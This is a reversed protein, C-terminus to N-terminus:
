VKFLPQKRGGESSKGRRSDMMTQLTTMAKLVMQNLANFIAREWYGYYSMLAPSKGSNTGAVVQPLTPHPPFLLFLPERGLGWRIAVM